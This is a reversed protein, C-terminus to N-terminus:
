HDYFSSCNACPTHLLGAPSARSLDYFSRASTRINIGIDKKQHVKSFIPRLILAYRDQILAQQRRGKKPPSQELYALFHACASGIDINNAQRSPSPFHSDYVKKWDQTTCQTTGLRPNTRSWSPPLNAIATIQNKGIKTQVLFGTVQFSTVSINSPCLNCGHRKM